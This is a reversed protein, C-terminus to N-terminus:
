QNMGLLTRVSHIRAQVDALTLPTTEDLAMIANLIAQDWLANVASDSLHRLQAGSNEKIIRKATREAWVTHLTKTGYPVNM